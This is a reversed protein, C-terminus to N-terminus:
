KVANLIVTGDERRTETVAYGKKRWYRRTIETAYGQRLMNANDGVKETLGKAGDWWDVLLSYGPRGDRRKVIGIEYAGLNGKVSLAHECKGLDSEKFGVPLPDSGIKRGFWRYTSQGRRFELGM